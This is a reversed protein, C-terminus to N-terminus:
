RLAEAFLETLKAFAREAQPKNYSPNDPVCWGHKAGEYTESEYKGDWAGLAKEFEVIAEAPMSRDEVAHGFYLRATVQPLLLHPSDPSDAKYLGGGHFSAAAAIKDPNAAAARLSFGGGFCFGVVGMKQPRVSTQAALFGVYAKADGAQAQPTLPDILEHMREVTRPDGPVRPFEWVPPRGSRYFPNPLLVVYGEAALRRAMQRQVERIGGIDTVFLVGPSPTGAEPTFLVADATGDPMAIQLNQETM